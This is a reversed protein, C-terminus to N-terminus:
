PLDALAASGGEPLRPPLGQAALQEASGDTVRWLSLSQGTRILQQDAFRAFAAPNANIAVQAIDALEVQLVAAQWTLVTLLVSVVLVLVAVLVSVPRPRVSAMVPPVDGGAVATGRGWEVRLDDM